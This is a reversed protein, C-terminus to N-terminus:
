VAHDTDKLSIFLDDGETIMTIKDRRRLLEMVESEAEKAGQELREAKARVSQIEKLIAARQEPTEADRRQAQLKVLRLSAEPQLDSHGVFEKSSRGGESYCVHLKRTATEKVRALRLEEPDFQAQVKRFRQVKAFHERVASANHGLQRATRAFSENTLDAVSAAGLLAESYALLAAQRDNPASRILDDLSSRATTKTM